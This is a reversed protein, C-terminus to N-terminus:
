IIMFTSVKPYITGQWDEESAKVLLSIILVIILTIWFKNSM